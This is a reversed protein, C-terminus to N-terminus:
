KFFDHSHGMPEVPKSSYGGTTVLTMDNMYGGAVVYMNKSEQSVVQGKSTEDECMLLRM